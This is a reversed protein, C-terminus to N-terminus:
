IKSYSTLFRMFLDCGNKSITNYHTLQFIINLHWPIHRRSNNVILFRVLVQTRIDVCLSLAIGTAVPLVSNHPWINPGNPSISMDATFLFYNKINGVTALSYSEITCLRFKSNSSVRFHSGLSSIMDLYNRPQAGASQIRDVCIRSEICFLVCSLWSYFVSGYRPYWNVLDDYFWFLPWSEISNFYVSPCGNNM